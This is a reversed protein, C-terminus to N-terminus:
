HGWIICITELNSSPEEQLKLLPLLINNLFKNQHLWDQQWFRPFSEFHYLVILFMQITWFFFVDFLLRTLIVKAFNTLLKSLIMDLVSSKTNEGVIMNMINQSKKISACMKRGGCTFRNTIILLLSIYVFQGM